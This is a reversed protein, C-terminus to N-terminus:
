WGDRPQESSRRVTRNTLARTLRDLSLRLGFRYDSPFARFVVFPEFCGVRVALSYEKDFVRKMGMDYKALYSATVPGFRLDARAHLAHSSHLQDFDYLSRGGEFGKMYSLGLRGKPAEYIAAAHLRAWGFTGGGQLYGMLDGGFTTRIRRGLDPGRQATALWVVAREHTAADGARIQHARVQAIYGGRAIPGGQEYAVELSKNIRESEARARANQNGFTGLSWSKRVVKHEVVEEKPTEVDINDFYRKAFWENLESRPATPGRAQDATIPSSTVMFGYGPLQRPFSGFSGLVTTTENLLVSSSWSVGAGQGRRYSVFPPRIGQVRRDLSFSMGPLMPTKVGLVELGIQKARGGKGPTFRISPILIAYVPRERGCTTVRVKRMTWFDPGITMREATLFAGAAELVVNTAEGTKAGWDFRLDRATITGDPDVIRVDGEAFGRKSGNLLTLSRAHLTTPGFTAKIGDSFFLAQQDPETSGPPFLEPRTDPGVEIVEFRQWEVRLEDGFQTVSATQGGAQAFPLMAGLVIGPLLPHVPM